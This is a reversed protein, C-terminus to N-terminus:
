ALAVDPLQVDVTASRDFRVTVVTGRGPASQFEMRAGHAEVISNTIALGLGSGGPKTTYFPNFIKAVQEPAVGPGQDSVELVPNDQEVFVRVTLRGPREKMAECANKVLNWVVQRVLDADLDAEVGRELERVLEVGPHEGREFLDLVDEVLRDIQVRAFELTRPRALVLFDTILRNLREAERTINGMLRQMAEPPDLTTRLVDISACMSALPNRVEHALGAAFQGVSALRESRAVADKLRVIDTVDQFVLIASLTGAGSLPAVSFGLRIVEGDVREFDAEARGGKSWGNMFAVWAEDMPPVLQALRQGRLEEPQLKLIALAAENAFRIVGSGDVTLVGAPLSRLISAHLDYLEALDSEKQALKQGTARLKEALTSALFAVLILGASNGAFFLLAEGWRGGFGLVGILQLAVVLGFLGISTTAALMAGRRYLTMSAALVVFVYAFAFPSESGQTLLVLTTVLVADLAVQGYALLKTLRQTRLLVLYLVSLGCTVAILTFHWPQVGHDLSPRVVVQVGLGVLVLTVVGLRLAAVTFLSRGLSAREQELLEQTALEPDPLNSPLNSLFGM